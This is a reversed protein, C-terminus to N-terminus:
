EAIKIEKAVIYAELADSYYNVYGKIFVVKNKDEFEFWKEFDVDDLQKLSVEISIFSSSDLLKFTIIKREYDTTFYQMPGIVVNEFMHEEAIIYRLDTVEDDFPNKSSSGINQNILLGLFILIFVVSFMIILLKYAESYNTVDNKILENETKDQILVDYERSINKNNENQKALISVFDDIQINFLQSLKIIEPISPESSGDEWSLIDEESVNLLKSLTLITM